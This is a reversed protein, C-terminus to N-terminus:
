VSTIGALNVSFIRTSNSNPTIEQHSSNGYMYRKSKRKAAQIITQEDNNFELAMKKIEMGQKRPQIKAQSDQFWKVGM